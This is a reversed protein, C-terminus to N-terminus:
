DRKSTTADLSHFDGTNCPISPIMSGQKSFGTYESKIPNLPPPLTTTPTAEVQDLLTGGEEVLPLVLNETKNVLPVSAPILPEQTITCATGVPSFPDPTLRKEPTLAEALSNDASLDSFDIDYSIKSLGLINTDEPTLGEFSQPDMLTLLDQEDPVTICPTIDLNLNTKHNKAATQMALAVNAMLSGSGPQKSDALPIPLPQRPKVVLPTRDLVSAM